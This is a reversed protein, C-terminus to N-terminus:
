EKYDSLFIKYINKYIEKDQLKLIVETIEEDNLIEMLAKKIGEESSNEAISKVLEFTQMLYDLGERFIVRIMFRMEPDVIIGSDTTIDGEICDQRDIIM